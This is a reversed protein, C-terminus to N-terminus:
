PSSTSSSFTARIISRRTIWWTHRSRGIQLLGRALRDVDQALDAFTWRRGQFGLAERAGDRRVREDLFSGITQKPFWERGMATGEEV